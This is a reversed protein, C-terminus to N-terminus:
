RSGDEGGHQPVGGGDWGMTVSELMQNWSGDSMPTMGTGPANLAGYEWDNGMLFGHNFSEDSPMGTTSFTTSFMEVSNTNASTSVPALGAEFVPFAVAAAPARASIGSIQNFGPKPSARYPLHHQQDSTGPSYSSHSTSGGRSQSSLTAPSPHDASRDNSSGSLDMENDDHFTFSAPTFDQSTSAGLGSQASVQPPM